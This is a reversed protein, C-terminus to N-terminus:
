GILMWTLTGVVAWLWASVSAALLFGLLPLSPVTHADHKM